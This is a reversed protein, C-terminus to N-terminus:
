QCSCTNQDWNKPGGTVLNVGCGGAPPQCVLKSNVACSGLPVPFTQCNFAADQPHAFCMGYPVYYPHDSPCPSALQNTADDVCNQLANDFHSGAPCVSPAKSPDATKCTGDNALAFGTACVVGDSWNLSGCSRCVLLQAQAGSPGSCVWKDGKVTCSANKPQDYIWDQGVGPTSAFSSTFSAGGLGAGQNACFSVINSVSPTPPNCAAVQLVGPANGPNVAFTSVGNPIQPGVPTPPLATPTTTATPALDILGGQNPNSVLGGSQAPGTNALAGPGSPNNIVCVGTSQECVAPYVCGTQICSLPTPTAPACANLFMLLLLSFTFGIQKYKMRSRNPKFYIKMLPFLTCGRDHKWGDGMSSIRSTRNKEGEVIFGTIIKVVPKVNKIVFSM